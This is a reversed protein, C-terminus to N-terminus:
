KPIVGVQTLINLIFGIVTVVTTLIFWKKNEKLKGEVIWLPVMTIMVYYAIGLPVLIWVFSLILAATGFLVMESLLFAVVTAIFLKLGKINFKFIILSFLLPYGIYVILLWPMLRQYYGFDLVADTGFFDVVFWFVVSLIFYKLWNKM